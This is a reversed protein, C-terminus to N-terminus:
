SAILGLEKDFNLKIVQALNTTNYRVTIELLIGSQYEDVKVAEVTVRPEARLLGRIDEAIAVKLDPTLPEFIADWIITGQNPDMVREGKRTSFQNIIDQRVCELDYTKFNQEKLNSNFGKYIHSTKIGFDRTPTSSKIVVKKITM